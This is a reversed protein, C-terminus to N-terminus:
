RTPIAPATPRLSRVDANDTPLCYAGGSTATTVIAMTALFLALLWVVGRYMKSLPSQLM